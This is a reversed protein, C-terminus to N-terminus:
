DAAQGVIVKSKGRQYLSRHYISRQTQRKHAQECCREDAMSPVSLRRETITYREWGNSNLRLKQGRPDHSPAYGRTQMTSGQMTSGDYSGWASPSKVVGVEILSTARGVDLSCAPNRLVLGVGM